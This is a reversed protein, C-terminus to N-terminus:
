QRGFSANSRTGSEWCVFTANSTSNMGNIEFSPFRRRVESLAADEGTSGQPFECSSKEGKLVWWINAGGPGSDNTKVLIRSVDQWAIFQSEGSPYSSSIGTESVVVKVAREPWLAVERSERMSAFWSRIRTFM